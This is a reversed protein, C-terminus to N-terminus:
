QARQWVSPRTSASRLRDRRSPFSQGRVSSSSSLMVLRARSSPTRAAEETVCCRFDYIDLLPRLLPLSSDRGGCRARAHRRLPRDALSGHPAQTPQAATPAVPICPPPPASPDARRSRSQVPLWHARPLDDPCPACRCSLSGVNHRRRRQPRALRPRCCLASRKRCRLLHLRKASSRLLFEVLRNRLTRHGAVESTADETPALPRVPTTTM